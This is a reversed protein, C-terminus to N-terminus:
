AAPRKRSRSVKRHAETLGFSADLGVEIQVLFRTKTWGEKAASDGESCDRGKRHVRTPALDKHM